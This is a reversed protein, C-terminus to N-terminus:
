KPEKDAKKIAEKVRKAMKPQPAKEPELIPEYDFTNRTAPHQEFAQKEAETVPGYRRKTKRNIQWYRM